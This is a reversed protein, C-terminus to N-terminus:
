GSKVKGCWALGSKVKELMISGSIIHGLRVVQCFM